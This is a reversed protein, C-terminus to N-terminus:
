YYAQLLLEHHGDRAYYNDRISAEENLSPFAIKILELYKEIAPERKEDDDSRLEDLIIASNSYKYGSNEAFLQVVRM